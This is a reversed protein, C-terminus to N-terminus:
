RIKGAPGRPWRSSRRQLFRVTVGDPGRAYFLRLWGPQRGTRDPPKGLMMWGADAVRAALADLDDILFALHVSGM